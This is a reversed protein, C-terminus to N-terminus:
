SKPCSPARYVPCLLRICVNQCGRGTTSFICGLDTHVRCREVVLDRRWHLAYISLSDVCVCAKKTQRKYPIMHGLTDEFLASTSRSSRVKHKGEVSWWATYLKVILLVENGDGPYSSIDLEKCM